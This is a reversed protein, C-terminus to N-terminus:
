TNKLYFSDSIFFIKTPKLFGILILNTDGGPFQEYGLIGGGINCVWINLHTAPSTPNISGKKSSKMADRAGWSTKSSQKRNVAAM